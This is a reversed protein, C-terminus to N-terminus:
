MKVGHPVENSAKQSRGGRGAANLSVGSQPFFGFSLREAFQMKITVRRFRYEDVKQLNKDGQQVFTFVHGVYLIYVRMVNHENKM